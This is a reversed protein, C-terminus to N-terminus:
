AAKKNMGKQARSKLRAAKNKHIVKKRALHDALACLESVATKKADGEAKSFKRVTSRLASKKARNRLRAKENTISRKIASKHHAL